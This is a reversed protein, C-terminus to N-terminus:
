SWALTREQARASSKELPDEHSMETLAKGLPDGGQNILLMEWPVVPGQENGM